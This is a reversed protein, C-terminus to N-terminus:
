RYPKAHERVPSGSTAYGEWYKPSSFHGTKLMERQFMERQALRVAEAPGEGRHSYFFKMFQLDAEDGVPWLTTVLPEAGAM